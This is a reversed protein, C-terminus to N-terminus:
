PGAEADIVPADSVTSPPQVACQRCVAEAVVDPRDFPVFTSADDAWTVETGLLDALRVADAAPFVRDRRGWVM